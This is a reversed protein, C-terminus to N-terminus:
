GGRNAIYTLLMLGLGLLAILTTGTYQWVQRRRDELQRVREDRKDGEGQLDRVDDRLDALAAQDTLRNAVYVDQRIYTKANEVRDARVEALMESVRQTIDDLRRMIEGPTPESTM